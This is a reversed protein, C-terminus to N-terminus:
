KKFEMIIGNTQKLSFSSIHSDMSALNARGEASGIQKGTLGYLMAKWATLMGLAVVVM